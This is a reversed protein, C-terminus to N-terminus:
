AREALRHTLADGLLNFAVVAVAITISASLVENPSLLLVKRGDSLM